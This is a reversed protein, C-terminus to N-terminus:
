AHRRGEENSLASPGDGAPPPLARRRPWIDDTGRALAVLGDAVLAPQTLFPFHGEEIEVPGTGFVRHTTERARRVSICRDHKGNVVVTPAGPWEQLPTIERHPKECQPRQRALAWDQIARPCDYFFLERAVEPETRHWGEGDDLLNSEQRGPTTEAIAMELSSGPLPLAACIFALADVPRLQAVLPIVIGGLSHGVVIVPEEVDALSDAVVRAYETAGASPDEIPLDVAIARYGRDNLEAILPEFCWAGQQGGHVMSFVTM